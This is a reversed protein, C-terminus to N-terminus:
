VGAGRTHAAYSQAHSHNACAAKAVAIGVRFILSDFHFIAQNIPTKSPHFYNWLGIFVKEQKRKGV